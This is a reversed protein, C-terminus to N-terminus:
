GERVNRSARLVVIAVVALAVGAGIRIERRYRARLYRAGYKVATRGLKEQIV